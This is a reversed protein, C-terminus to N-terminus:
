KIMSPRLVVFFEDVTLIGELFKDLEAVRENTSLDILNEGSWIYLKLEDNDGVFVLDGIIFHEKKLLRVRKAEFLPSKVNRGGFMTPVVAKAFTGMKKLTLNTGSLSFFNKKIKGLETEDSITKGLVEQYITNAKELESGDLIQINDILGKLKQQEELTLTRAVKVDNTQVNVGGVTTGSGSIKDGCDVRFKFELKVREESEVTVTQKLAGSLHTTNEPVEFVVDVTKKEKNTNFIAVTYAIEDGINITKGINHSSFKEAVLGDLNEMRARTNETVATTKLIAPRLVVIKELKTFVYSTPYSEERFLDIVRMFRVTPEYTELGKEYNYNGGSSHLIDGCGIYLMAHGTQNKRRIVIIDGPRLSDMFQKEVNNKEAETENGTPEYSFTVFKKFRALHYTWYHNTRYNIAFRLCDLAFAACNSYHWNQLTADEPEYNRIEWRWTGGDIFHTDDYQYRMGRMLFAEAVAVAALEKDSFGEKSYPTSCNMNNIAQSPRLVAWRKYEGNKIEEVSTKVMGDKKLLWFKESDYIYMKEDTVFIDGAVFTAKKLDLSDGRLLAKSEPVITKAYYLTPAVMHITNVAEPTIEEANIEAKDESSITNEPEFIRDLIENPTGDLSVTKSLAITYIWKVLTTNEIPASELALIALRIKRQDWENFTREVFAQPVSTKINNM